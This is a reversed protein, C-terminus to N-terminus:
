NKIIESNSIIPLNNYVVNQLKGNVDTLTFSLHGKVFPNIKLQFHGETPNPFVYFSNLFILGM